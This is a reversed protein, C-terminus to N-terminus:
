LGFRSNQLQANADIGVRRTLSPNHKLAKPLTQTFGESVRRTIITGQTKAGKIEGKKFSAVEFDARLKGRSTRIPNSLAPVSTPSVADRLQVQPLLITRETEDERHRLQGPSRESSIDARM